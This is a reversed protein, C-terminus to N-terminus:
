SLREARGYEEDIVTRLVAINDAGLAKVFKPFDIEIEGNDREKIGFNAKFTKIRELAPEYAQKLTKLRAEASQAREIWVDDSM